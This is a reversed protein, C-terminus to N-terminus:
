SMYYTVFGVQIEEETDFDREWASVHEAHSSSQSVLPTPLLGSRTAHMVVHLMQHLQM